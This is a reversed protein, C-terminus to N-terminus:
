RHLSLLQETHERLLQWARAVHREATNLHGIAVRLTLVGNLQTHSLFVDGSANVAALLEENFTDLEAASAAAM